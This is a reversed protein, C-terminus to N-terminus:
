SLVITDSYIPMAGGAAPARALYRWLLRQCNYEGTLRM